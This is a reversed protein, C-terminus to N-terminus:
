GNDALMVNENRRKRTLMKVINVSLLSSPCVALTSARTYHAIWVWVHLSEDSLGYLHDRYHFLVGHLM